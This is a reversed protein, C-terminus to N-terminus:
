RPWPKNLVSKLVSFFVLSPRKDNLLKKDVLLSRLIEREKARLARVSEFETPIRKTIVMSGDLDVAGKAEMLPTLKKREHQMLVVSPLVYIILSLPMM